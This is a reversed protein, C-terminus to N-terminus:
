VGVLGLVLCAVAFSIGFLLMLGLNSMNQLPRKKSDIEAFKEALGESTINKKAM